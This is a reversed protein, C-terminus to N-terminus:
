SKTGLVRNTTIDHVEKAIGKLAYGVRTVRIITFRSADITISSPALLLTALCLPVVASSIKAAIFIEKMTKAMIWYM